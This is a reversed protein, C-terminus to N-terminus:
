GAAEELLGPNLLFDPDYKKKLEIFRLLSSGFQRELTEVSFRPEVGMLYQRGGARYAKEGIEALMPLFQEVEGVTPIEPRLAVILCAGAAPYPALPLVSQPSAVMVASGHALFRVMGTELLFAHTEELFAAANELPVFVEMAPVPTHSLSPYYEQFQGRRASALGFPSLIEADISRADPDSPAENAFYGLIGSILAPRNEEAWYVRVRGYGYLSENRIARLAKVFRPFDNWAAVRAAITDPRTVVSLTAHALVGLQSRGGLSYDFLDDGPEVDMVSGSPTIIKLARVHEVQLGDAWTTYGVGGVSLTGGVTMMAHDTVVPVTRGTEALHSVVTSWKTGALVELGDGSDLVIGSLRHTAIVVGGALLSQGGSSHGQGRITHRAGARRLMALCAALQEISAPELVCAPVRELYKGFDICPSEEFRYFTGLEVARSSRVPFETGPRRVIVAHDRAWAEVEALM